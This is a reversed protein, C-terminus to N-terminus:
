IDIGIRVWSWRFVLIRRPLQQYLEVGAKRKLHVDPRKKKGVMISREVSVHVLDPRSLTHLARSQGLTM